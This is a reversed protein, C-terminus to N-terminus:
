FIENPDYFESVIFRNEKEPAPIWNNAIYKYGKIVDCGGHLSLDDREGLWHDDSLLHNYWLM